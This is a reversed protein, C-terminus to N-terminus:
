KKKLGAIMLAPQHELVKSSVIWESGKLRLTFHNGNKLREGLARIEEPYDQHTLQYSEDAFANNKMQELYNYYNLARIGLQKEAEQTCTLVKMDHNLLLWIEHVRDKMLDQFLPAFYIECNSTGTFEENVYVPTMVTKCWGYTSLVAFPEPTWVTKRDPNHQPDPM